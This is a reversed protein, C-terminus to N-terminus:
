LSSQPLNLLRANNPFLRANRSFLCANNHGFQKIIPPPFDMYVQIISHLFHSLLFTSMLSNALRFLSM